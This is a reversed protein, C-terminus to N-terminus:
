PMAGLTRRAAMRTAMCAVAASPQPILPLWLWQWGRFGPRSLIGGEPRAPPMAGARSNLGVRGTLNPPPLVRKVGPGSRKM